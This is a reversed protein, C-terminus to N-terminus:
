SMINETGTCAPFPVTMLPHQGQGNCEESDHNSLLQM